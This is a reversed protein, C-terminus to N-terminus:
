TGNLSMADLRSIWKLDELAYNPLKVLTLGLQGAKEQAIEMFWEDERAGDVIIAQPRMMTGLYRFVSRVAVKKRELTLLEAKEARADHFNIHCDTREPKLPLGNLLQFEELPLTDFGMLVIHM